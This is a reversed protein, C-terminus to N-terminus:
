QTASALGNSTGSSVTAPFLRQFCDGPLSAELCHGRAPRIILRGSPAGASLRRGVTQGLRAVPFHAGGVPGCKQSARPRFHRPELPWTRPPRAFNPLTERRFDGAELGTSGLPGPQRAALPSSLKPRLPRMPLPGTQSMNPPALQLKTPQLQALLPWSPARNAGISGIPGRQAQALQLQNFKQACTIV